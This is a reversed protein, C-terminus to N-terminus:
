RAVVLGDALAASLPRDRLLPKIEIADVVVSGAM